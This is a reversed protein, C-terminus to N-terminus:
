YVNYDIEEFNEALEFDNNLITHSRKRLLIYLAGLLINVFISIFIILILPIHNSYKSIQKFTELCEESRDDSELCCKLQALSETDATWHNFNKNICFNNQLNLKELKRLAVFCGEDIVQMRNNEFNLQILELNSHFQEGSLVTIANNDLDLQELSKLPYFVLFPLNQIKNHSLILMRLEGLGYFTLPYIDAIQNHQLKLTWLKALNKFSNGVITKLKNFSLILYHLERADAFTHEYIEELSVNKAIFERTL